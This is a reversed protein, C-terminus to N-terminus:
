RAFVEIENLVLARGAEPSDVRLRVLRARQGHLRVIWPDVLSYSTNRRGVETYTSGDESVELVSPLDYEGWCCDGRDYVIVKSLSHVALLDIAVWPRMEANTCIDFAASSSGDVLGSAPLGEPGSGAPCEARRSSMHVPKGLAINKPRLLCFAGCAIAALATLGFAGIRTIRSRKLQSVNRAEILNRLWAVGRSAESRRAIAVDPSLEDFALTPGAEFLWRVMEFAAPAPPLEGREVLQAIREFCDAMTLADNPIGREELVARIVLTAADHLLVLAAPDHRGMPLSDVLSLRSDAAAILKQIAEQKERPRSGVVRLAGELLMFERFVGARGTTWHTPNAM